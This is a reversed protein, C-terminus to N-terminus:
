GYIKPKTPRVRPQYARTILDRAVIKDLMYAIHHIGSGEFWFERSSGPSKVTLRCDKFDREAESGFADITDTVLEIQEKTLFPVDDIERREYDWFWNPDSCTKDLYVLDALTTLASELEPSSNEVRVVNM